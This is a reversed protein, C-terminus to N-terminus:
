LKREFRVGLAVENGRAALSSSSRDQAGLTLKTTWDPPGKVSLSVEAFSQHQNGGNEREINRYGIGAEMQGSGSPGISFRRNIGLRLDRASTNNLPNDLRTQLARIQATVALASTANHTLSLVQVTRAGSFGLRNDARALAELQVRIETTETIAQTAVLAAGIETNSGPQQRQDLRAIALIRGSGNTGFSWSQIPLRVDMRMRSLKASDGSLAFGNVRLRAGEALGLWPNQKTTRMEADFTLATATRSSSIIGDDSEEADLTGFRFGPATSTLAGVAIMTEGHAASAAGLASLAPIWMFRFLYNSVLAYEVLLSENKIHISYHRKDDQGLPCTPKEFHEKLQNPLEHPL